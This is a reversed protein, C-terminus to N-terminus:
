PIQPKKNLLATTIRNLATDMNVNAQPDITDPFLDTEYNHKAFRRYRSKWRDYCGQWRQWGKEFSDDSRDTALAQRLDEALRPKDETRM